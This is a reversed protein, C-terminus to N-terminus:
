VITLICEDNDSDSLLLPQLEGAEGSAGPQPEGEVPKVFCALAQQFM